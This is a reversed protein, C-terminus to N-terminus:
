KKNYRFDVIEISEKFKKGKFKLNSVNKVLGKWLSLEKCEFNFKFSTQTSNDCYVTNCLELNIEQDYYCMTFYSIYRLDVPFKELYFHAQFIYNIHSLNDICPKMTKIIDYLMNCEAVTDNDITHIIMSRLWIDDKYLELFHSFAELEQKRSLQVQLEFLKYKELKLLAGVTYQNFM